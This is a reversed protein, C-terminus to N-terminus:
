YVEVRRSARSKAKKCVPSQRAYFGRCPGFFSADRKEKELDQRLAAM